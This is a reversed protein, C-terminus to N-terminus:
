VNKYVAFKYISSFFKEKKNQKIVALFEEIMGRDILMVHQSEALNKAQNSYKWNTVVCAYDANYYSKASAVQSVAAGGVAHNYYLKTQVVITKFGKKVIVDAGYDNSAKTLKTRYGCFRFILAVIQEFDRGTLADIKQITVGKFFHKIQLKYFWNFVYIIPYFLIYLFKKM